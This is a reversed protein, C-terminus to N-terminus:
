CPERRDERWAPAALLSSRMLPPPAPPTPAPPPPPPIPAPPPPPPTPTPTAEVSDVKILLSENNIVTTVYRRDGATASLNEFTEVVTVPTTPSSLPAVMVELRFRSDD